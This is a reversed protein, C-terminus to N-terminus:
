ALRYPREEATLPEHTAIQRELVALTAESADGTRAAIRRRLEGAPAECALIGFPVDLRAALARFDERESRRLFAADVIVSWGDSLAREALELLRAYTRRNAEQSYIGGDTASGSAEGASLGFLRKREVDSRLRVTSAGPDAMLRAAAATTKGSGSLGFAIALSPTRPATLREAMALYGRAEAPDGRLGAVKARVLARYAAYFRLVALAGYDGTVSLWEDLLWGALDPRGHDVLDIWAFAIESAVDIWRLDDNFEICDFPVVHGDLLVLNGLHLDGHCERVRGEAKRAAFVAGHRAAEARAWTELAELRPAEDPLLTRLEIFNELAPALAQAPEGFRTEPDAVAAGAHFAAVVRALESLHATTLEGRACVHDLRMAEDFRRMKVAWEFPHGNELVPEDPTGGIPEVSLYLRPATRRNLRLEERCCARRKEPTGYDLFPLTVPKKIKYAFEGALLVWSIHTEVLGVRDVPHPYRDPDLLASILPPHPM